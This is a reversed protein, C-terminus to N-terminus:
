HIKEACRIGDIAASVIGGAYGAGEGCPYLNAIQEHQLTTRNRPIRVPSSTRSEVGLIIGESSNYGKIKKDFIKIGEQLRQGVHKPLWDHLNSSVVGPHYSTKPLKNSFKNQTFDSITQAPAVLNKKGNQYALNELFQQFKLGALEGYKQKDPFDEQRIEVVLGSNAFRSNRMSPSMGNVVIKNPATAAPVIFGGPCMCFSYVGRNKVQSVLSYAAAPLYKDRITYSYQSRDILNQPHEVRVGMAFSKSEIKIKKLHLLEFIDRASHGTALIVAKGEINEGNQTKIGIAKNDKIIFDTVKTNFLIKGGAKEITERIAVIIRPLMNTGIHPHAETLIENKAGHMKLMELVYTTSGRKKSRTYLKGDSFTGAGGEGFCYNSNPNVENNRNILAVDRKREKVAKGRELIIPRLGKEILKLAAFLGAPGAGVIVVEPKTSVDQFNYEFIQKQYKEDAFWVNARMVIKVNKQRADISRRIVDIEKIKEASIKLKKAIEKKYIAVHAAAKPSLNITIEKM